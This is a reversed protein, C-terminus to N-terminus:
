QKQDAILNNVQSKEEEGKTLMDSNNFVIDLKQKIQEKNFPKAIYDVFGESIYKEKAGVVADATLAIVATKFNPNEITFYMLCCVLSEMATTIVLEPHKMQIIMVELGLLLYLWIPMAKKSLGVNKRKVILITFM